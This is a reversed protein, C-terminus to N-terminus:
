RFDFYPYVNAISGGKLSLNLLISGSLMDSSYSSFTILSCTRWWKSDLLKIWSLCYLKLCNRDVPSIRACKVWIHFLASSIPLSVKTIPKSMEFAKSWTQCLFRRALNGANPRGGYRQLHSLLKREFQEILTSTSPTDDEDKLVLAPTGWPETM